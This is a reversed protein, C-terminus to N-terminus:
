VLAIILKYDGDDMSLKYLLENHPVTEFAKKFDFYIADTCNKNDAHHYFDALFKMLQAFLMSSM